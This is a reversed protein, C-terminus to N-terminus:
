GEAMEFAKRVWKCRFPAGLENPKWGRANGFDIAETVMDYSVIRPLEAILNQGNVPASAEIVLLGAGSIALSGLHGFHWDGMSGDDASYQCMPAVVIRNPLTIGGLRIPTFLKTM